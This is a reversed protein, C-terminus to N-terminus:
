KPEGPFKAHMREGLVTGDALVEYPIGRRLEMAGVRRDSLNIELRRDRVALARGIAHGIVVTGESSIGHESVFTNDPRALLETYFVWCCGGVFAPDSVPQRFGGPCGEPEFGIAEADAVYTNKEQFYAAHAVFLAKMYSIGEQMLSIGPGSSSTMPRAGASSAGYLMYIAALESESQIFIRGEEPMRRAMYELLESQPTIPYGAYFDCGAQIAAEALVENGAM